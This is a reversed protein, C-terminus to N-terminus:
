HHGELHLLDEPTDIDPNAGSVYICRVGGPVAALLRGVGADGTAERALPWDARALLVPHGPEGPAAAYCPRVSRHQERWDAILAQIVPRRLLPQDALVILAAAAEPFVGPRSLAGLGRQLSTSLGERPNPNEVLTFGATDLPWVLSTSAPPIVAVAGALEGAQISEAITTAVHTIIPSGQWRALLKDGGFRSGEGAALVLAYVAPKGMGHSGEM